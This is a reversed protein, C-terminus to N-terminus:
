SQAEDGNAKKRNLFAVVVNVADKALAILTVLPLVVFEFSMMVAGLVVAVTVITQSHAVEAAKLLPGGKLGAVLLAAGALTRGIKKTRKEAPIARIRQTVLGVHTKGPDSM